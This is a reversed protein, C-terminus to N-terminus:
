KTKTNYWKIFDVIGYYVAQMRSDSNKENFVISGLEGLHIVFAFANKGGALSTGFGLSQIKEVVPMLWDWSSEFKMEEPEFFHQENEGDEIFELIGYLEYSTFYHRPTAGLFEVILKTKDM